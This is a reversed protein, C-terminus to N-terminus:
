NLFINVGLFLFLFFFKLIILFECIGGVICVNFLFKLFLWVGWFIGIVIFMRWLLGILELELLLVCDFFLVRCEVFMFMGFCFGKFLWFFWCFLLSLLRFFVGVILVGGECVLLFVFIVEWEGVVDVFGFGLLENCILIGFIGLCFEFFFEFGWIWIGCNDKGLLVFWDFLRVGDLVVEECSGKLCVGECFFNDLDEVFIVLFKLWILSFLWDFLLLLFGVLYLNIVLFLMFLILWLVLRKFVEVLIM